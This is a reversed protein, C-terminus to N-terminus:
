RCQRPMRQTLQTPPRAVDDAVCLPLRRYPPAIRSLVRLSSAVPVHVSRGSERAGGRIPPLPAAGRVGPRSSVRVHARRTTAAFCKPAAGNVGRDLPFRKWGAVRRHGGSREHTRAPSLRRRSRVWAYNVTPATIDDRQAEGSSDKAEDGAVRVGGGGEDWAAMERGTGTAVMLRGTVTSKGGGLHGVTCVTVHCRERAM